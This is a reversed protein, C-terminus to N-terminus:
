IFTSAFEANSAPRLLGLRGMLSGARASRQSVVGGADTLRLEDIGFAIVGSFSHLHDRYAEYDPYSFRANTVGSRLRLAFNVMTAPDVEGQAEPGTHGIGPEAIRVVFGVPIMKM